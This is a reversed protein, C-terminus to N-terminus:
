RRHLPFYMGSVDKILDLCLTELSPNRKNAMKLRGTVYNGMDNIDGHINILHMDSIKDRLNQVLHPRTSILLRCSTQLKSFLELVSDLNSEDCEDVADFVLYESSGLSSMLYHMVSNFNPEQDKRACQEYFAIFDDPISDTGCLM